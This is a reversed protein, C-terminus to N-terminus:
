ILELFKQSGPIVLKVHSLFLIINSYTLPTCVCDTTYKVRVRVRYVLSLVNFRNKAFLGCAEKTSFCNVIFGIVLSM